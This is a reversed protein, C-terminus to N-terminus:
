IAPYFLRLGGTMIRRLVPKLSGAGHQVWQVLTQRTFGPGLWEIM